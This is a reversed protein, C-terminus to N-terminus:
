EDDEQCHPGTCGPHHQELHRVYDVAIGEASGESAEFVEPANAVIEEIFAEHGAVTAEHHRNYHEHLDRETTATGVYVGDLYALAFILPLVNLAALAALAEQIRAVGIDAGLPENTFPARRAIHLTRHEPDWTVTTDGGDRWTNDHRQWINGTRAFRLVRALQQRATPPRTNTSM